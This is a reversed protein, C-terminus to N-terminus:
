PRPSPSAKSSTAERSYLGVVLPQQEVGCQVVVRQVRVRRMGPAVASPDGEPPHVVILSPLDVTTELTFLDEIIRSRIYPIALFAFNPPVSMQEPPTKWVTAIGVYPVAAGVDALRGM